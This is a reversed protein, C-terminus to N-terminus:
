TYDREPSQTTNRGLLRDTNGTIKGLLHQAEQMYYELKRLVTENSLRDNAPKVATKDLSFEDSVAGAGRIPRKPSQTTDPPIRAKAENVYQRLKRLADKFDECEQRTDMVLRQVHQWAAREEMLCTETVNRLQGEQKVQAKLKDIEEVAMQLQVGMEQMEGELRDAYCQELDGLAPRAKSHWRAIANMLKKRPGFLKIGIEKLDNDTLSLFVQLDVDQEEFIPLYKTLGLQDLMTPLDPPTDKVKEMFNSPPYVPDKKVGDPIPATGLDPPFMQYTNFPVQFGPPPLFPRVPQQNDYNSSPSVHKNDYNSSPSVQFPGTQPTPTQPDAQGQFSNTVLNTSAVVLSSTDTNLINLASVPSVNSQYAPATMPGPGVSPSLIPTTPITRDQNQQAAPWSPSPVVPNSAVHVNGLNHDHQQSSNSTNDHTQSVPIEHQVIRSSQEIGQLNHYMHSQGDLHKQQVLMENSFGASTEAMYQQVSESQTNSPFPSRLLVPNDVNQNFQQLKPSSNSKHQDSPNNVAESMSINDTMKALTETVSGADISNVSEIWDSVSNKVEEIENVKDKTLNEKNKKFKVKSAGKVITGDRNGNNGQEGIDCKAKMIDHIQETEDSKEDGGEESSSDGSDGHPRSDCSSDHPFEDSDLSDERRIGLAAALGGSSGSSSKITLAGTKSFANTDDENEFSEKGGSSDLTYDQPNIPSTVDRFSLKQPRPDQEEAGEEQFTVYGKPVVDPYNDKDTHRTRDILRAIADPGDRISPGGGRGRATKSRPGRPHLHRNRSLADDSSSLDQELGAEARLSTIPMVHNDILSVIKMNGNILALSRATDGNDAKANVNVGHQLFLQLIIEHGESAAEMFPTMGMSKEVANMNAGQQLLFRVMNQHGSYTAHFLATWGREDHAELEAGQQCLYYGVSENGCSAALMLPSEGKLNRINVSVGAELLLNVISDHGIYCAYMLATWGGRNRKDFDIEGRTILNKVCEYQGLSSATHLDLPIPEFKEKGVVSKGKWVSLSKDLLESESAEDSGENEAM